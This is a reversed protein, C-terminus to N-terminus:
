KPTKLYEKIFSVNNRSVPVKIDLNKINVYSKAEKRFISEVKLLNILYSKHCRYIFKNNISSELTKLSNRITFKLITNEIKKLYFVDIYHEQSYAYLFRESKIKLVERKNKGVFILEEGVDNIEDGVLKSVDKYSYILDILIHFVSTLTYIFIFYVFTILFTFAFRIPKFLGTEEIPEGTFPNYSTRNGTYFYLIAQFAYVLFFCILFTGIFSVRLFHAGKKKNNFIIPLSYSLLGIVTYALIYIYNKVGTLNSYIITPKFFLFIFLLCSALFFSNRVIKKKLGAPKLFESVINYFEFGKKM